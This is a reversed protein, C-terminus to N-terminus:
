STSPCIPMASGWGQGAAVANRRVRRYVETTSLHEHGLLAQVARLDRSADLVDSAATHRLAHLSVGDYPALKVGAARLLTSARRPWTLM